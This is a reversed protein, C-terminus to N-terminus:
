RRSAAYMSRPERIAVRSDASRRAQRGHNLRVPAAVPGYAHTLGVVGLAKGNAGVVQVQASTEDCPELWVGTERKAPEPKWPAPLPMFRVGSNIRDCRYLRIDSDVWRHGDPDCFMAREKDAPETETV